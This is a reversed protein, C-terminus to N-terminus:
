EFGKEYESPLKANCINKEKHDDHDDILANKM